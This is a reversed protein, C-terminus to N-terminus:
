QRQQRTHLIALMGFKQFLLLWRILLTVRNFAVPNTGPQLSRLRHLVHQPLQIHWFILFSSVFENLSLQLHQSHTGLVDRLATSQTLREQTHAETSSASSTLSSSM